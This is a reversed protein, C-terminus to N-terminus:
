WNRYYKNIFDGYPIMYYFGEDKVGLRTLLRFFDDLTEEATRLARAERLYDSM